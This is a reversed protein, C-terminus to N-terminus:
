VITNRKLILDNYAELTDPHVPREEEALERITYALGYVAAEELDRESKERIVDVDPYDRDASVFDAVFLTLEEPTMNAKGTTHYRVASLVRPDTVGLQKELYVAGVVAHWLKPARIELPTLAIDWKECLGFIEQAPAEKLVDHLLGAEYCVAADAGSKEALHKASEAVCLSHRLRRDSLRERLVDLYYEYKARDM